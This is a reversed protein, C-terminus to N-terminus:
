YNCVSVFLICSSRSFYCSFICINTMNSSLFAISEITVATVDSYQTIYELLYALLYTLLYTTEKNMVSLRLRSERSCRNM